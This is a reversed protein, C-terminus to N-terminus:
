EQSLLSNPMLELEALEGDFIATFFDLCGGHGLIIVEDNPSGFEVFGVESRWKIEESGNVIGFEVDGYHITLPEGSIGMAQSTAKSDLDVGLLEALSIPLLTEDAGTNSWAM